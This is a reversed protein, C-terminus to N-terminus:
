CIGWAADVRSRQNGAPMGTWSFFFFFLAFTHTGSVGWTQLLCVEKEDSGGRGWSQIKLEPNSDTIDSLQEKNGASNSLKERDRNGWSWFSAIIGIIGCSIAELSNPGTACPLFWVSGPPSGSNHLCLWSDLSVLAAVTWLVSYQFPSHQVFSYNQLHVFTEGSYNLQTSILMHM